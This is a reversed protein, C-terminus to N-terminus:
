VVFDKYGDVSGDATKTVAVWVPEFRRLEDFAPIAGRRNADDWSCVAKGRQGMAKADDWEVEVGFTKDFTRSVLHIEKSGGETM